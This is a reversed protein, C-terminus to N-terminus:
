PFVAGSFRLLVRFPFADGRVGPLVHTERAPSPTGGECVKMGRRDLNRERKWFRRRLFTRKPPVGSGARSGRASGPVRRSAGGIKASKAHKAPVVEPDAALFLILVIVRTLRLSPSGIQSGSRLRRACVWGGAFHSRRAIRRGRGRGAHSCDRRVRRRPM